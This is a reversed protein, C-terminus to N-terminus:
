VMVIVLLPVPSAVSASTWSSGGEASVSVDAFVFPDPVNSRTVKSQVTGNTEGPAVAVSVSAAVM